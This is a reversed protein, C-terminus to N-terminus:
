SHTAVGRFATLYLGIVQIVRYIYLLRYSMVITNLVVVHNHNSMYIMVHAFSMMMDVAFIHGHIIMIHCM